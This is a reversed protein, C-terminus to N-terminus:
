GLVNGSNEELMNKLTQVVSVQGAKYWIKRDEDKLSPVVNPYLKELYEVLEKSIAPLRSM